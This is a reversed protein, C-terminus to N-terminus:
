NCAFLIRGTKQGAQDVQPLIEVRGTVRGAPRCSGPRDVRRNEM